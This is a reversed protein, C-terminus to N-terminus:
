RGCIDCWVVRRVFFYDLTGSYLGLGLIALCGGAVDASFVCVFLRDNLPLKGARLQLLAWVAAGSGVAFAIVTFVIFTTTSIYGRSIISPCDDAGMYYSTSNLAAGSQSNVALLVLRFISV